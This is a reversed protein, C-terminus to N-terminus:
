ADTQKEKWAYGILLGSAVQEDNVRITTEQTEWAGRQLTTRTSVECLDAARVPRTWEFRDVAALMQRTGDHLPREPLDVLLGVQAAAEILLEPPVLDDPGLGPILREFCVHARAWNGPQREVLDSVFRFPPHMPLLDLM